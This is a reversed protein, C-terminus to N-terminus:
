YPKATHQHRQKANDQEMSSRVILEALFIFDAGYHQRPETGPLLDEGDRQWLWDAKYNSNTPLMDAPFIAANLLISMAKIQNGTTFRNYAYQFLANTPNNDAYHELTKVMQHTVSGKMEGRLLIQLVELHARFGKLGPIWVDPYALHVEHRPGGLYYIAHALTKQLRPELFTRGIDGEGMVWNNRIGYDWLSELIDLRSNYWSWWMLGLLMDGSIDSKSRNTVLCDHEPTRFWRGPENTSEAIQVDVTDIAIGVLSNFMLGDCKFDFWGTVDDQWQIALQKYVRLKQNLMEISNTTTQKGEKGCGIATILLALIMRYIMVCRRAVIKGYKKLATL